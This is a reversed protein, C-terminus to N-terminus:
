MNQDVFGIYTFCIKLFHFHNLLLGDRFFELIMLWGCEFDVSSYAVFMIMKFM